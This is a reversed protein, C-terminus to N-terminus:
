GIARGVLGKARESMAIGLALERGRPGMKAWTKRLIGIMKEEDGLGKEFGDLQDDLFVLCAVDELIQVEEAYRLEREENEQAKEKEEEKQDEGLKVAGANRPRRLGVKGM